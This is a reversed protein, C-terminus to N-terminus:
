MSLNILLGNMFIWKINKKIIPLSIKYGNKEFKKLDEFCDIEYNIPFYAGIIKKKLLNNEKLIAKILSYNISINRFNNKRLILLNKRIIKKSM